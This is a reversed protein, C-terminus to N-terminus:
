LVTHVRGSSKLDKHMRDLQEEGTATIFLRVSLYKGTRSPQENVKTLDLDRDYKQVIQIVYSRFDDANNGVVTIKYDPCPFEIKPAQPESM